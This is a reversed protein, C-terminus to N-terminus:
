TAGTRASRVWALGLKTAKARTSIPMPKVSPLVSPPRRASQDSSPAVLSIRPSSATMMATSGSSSVVWAPAAMPSTTHAAAAKPMTGGTCIRTMCAAAWAGPRAEDTLTPANLRPLASPAASPPAAM